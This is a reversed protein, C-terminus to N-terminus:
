SVCERDPLSGFRCGQAMIPASRRAKLLRGRRARSAARGARGGKRPRGAKIPVLAQLAALLQTDGLAQLTHLGARPLERKKAPRRLAVARTKLISILDYDAKPTRGFPM